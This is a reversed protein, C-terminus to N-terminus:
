AGGGLLAALKDLRVDQFVRWEREHTFDQIEGNEPPSYVNVLGWLRKAWQVSSRSFRKDLEGYIERDVYLCPRGGVDFMDNKRFIFGFRGFREAHNILGPLNCESLCVCKRMDQNLRPYSSHIHGSKIIALAVQLSTADALNLATKIGQPSLGNEIAERIPTM